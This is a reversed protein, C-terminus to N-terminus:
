LSAHLVGSKKNYDSRIQPVQITMVKYNTVMNGESKWEVNQLGMGRVLRVVDSTMQVMLVTNAPLTDITKIGTIGTIKLIRERITIGLTTTGFDQDLVTEYGTPIYLRYPGFKLGSILQQKMALVQAVITAGATATALSSWATGLSYKLRDPHNLYSYISNRGDSGKDGYAYKTDTFLMAELKENVKRAAIQADITDLGNGLNRSAALERANIEYDVHIIPIPLYHYNFEPRDNKSRTIADMTLEAEMADSIDHYELITTGMANGLNYTLNSDILDQIGGLRFRSVELLADDLSKWEDRRLTANTNIRMKVYNKKSTPDGGTYTVIYTGGDSGIFPRMAGVNLKGNALLHQALQGQGSGNGILDVNVKKM